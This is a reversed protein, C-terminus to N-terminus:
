VKCVCGKMDIYAIEFCVFNLQSNTIYARIYTYAHSFTHNIQIHALGFKDAGNPCKRDGPTM